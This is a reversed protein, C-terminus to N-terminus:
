VKPDNGSLTDLVIMGLSLGIWSRNGAGAGTTRDRNNAERMDRLALEIPRYLNSVRPECRIMEPQYTGHDLETTM